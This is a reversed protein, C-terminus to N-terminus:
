EDLDTFSVKLNPRPYVLPWFKWPRTRGGEDGEPNTVKAIDKPLVASEIDQFCIRAHRRSPPVRVLYQANAHVEEGWLDWALANFGHTHQLVTKAVAKFEEQLLAPNAGVHIRTGWFDSPNM